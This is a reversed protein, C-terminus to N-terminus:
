LKYRFIHYYKDNCKMSLQFKNSTVRIKERANKLKFLKLLKPGFKSLMVPLVGLFKVSYYKAYFNHHQRLFLTKISM